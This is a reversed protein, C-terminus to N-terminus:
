EVSFIYAYLPQGGPHIEVEVAPALEAIYAALQETEEPNADAGSLITVIESNEDLMADLLKKAADLLSPESAVIEGDRIGIYEGEKIEIGDITTDRVAYTVQGSVVRGLAANMAAANHEADATEQFALVAALGQPITKSPIVVLQKDELLHAAQQAAMVINSNNPLVFVTDAHIGAAAKVIDETSPNMTQGGSLVVDVGVSTLIDTIGEGMAVAVFGFPKRPAAVNQVAQAEGGVAPGYAAEEANEATEEMVIHAHQDRMNEIKIRSLDGYKMAHNMVSGPLEAHIHVKVLEDDAVVLLSDGYEGLERRFKTEDFVLGPMKGPVVHLMFETCYGHEIVDASMLTQARKPGHGTDGHAEAALSRAAFAAEQASITEEAPAVHPIGLPTSDGRMAAVFGEYIYILGRGGADVVGVQKLVPLMDPTRALTEKGHQLVEEMLELIDGARRAFQVGHKAAERSVTLITGEVPKVVAKYATDVGNQLAAAFQQANASELEHVYKAFGRFLQSLIVGSNGRAGMLLGKSLAEAAKGLHASPRRRLEEVGSMLTLNMNTGTDGDPVPFVNLANVNEAHNGLSNAGALVLETFDHGNLSSFRKSM